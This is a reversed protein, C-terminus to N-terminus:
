VVKNLDKGPVWQACRGNNFRLVEYVSGSSDDAFEILTRYPYLSAFWNSEFDLDLRDASPRAFDQYMIVGRKSLLDRFLTRARRLQTANLQYLFTSATIIDFSDMSPSTSLGGATFDGQVFTVGDVENYELYDYESVSAKDMLESPYFSCSKAWFADKGDRRLPVIDSGVCDGLKIQHKLNGNFLVDLLDSPFNATQRLGSVFPKFSLNLHLKKLGHNRSCGVDLMTVEESFREHFLGIILKFAKYREVVNSQVNRSLIDDILEEFVTQDSFINQLSERWVTEQTFPFPYDPEHKLLQTQVGRLLLNAAYSPSAQTRADVASELENMYPNELMSLVAQSFSAIRADDAPPRIAQLSLEQRLVDSM